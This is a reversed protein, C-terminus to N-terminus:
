PARMYASVTIDVQLRNPAAAQPNVGWEGDPDRLVLKEVTLLPRAGDIAHLAVVVSKIEAEVTSQVTIKTLSGERTEPLPQSTTVAANATAFIQTLQGQLQAVALAPQPAAFTLQAIEPNAALQKSLLEFRPAADALGRMTLVQRKLMGVQEAHLASATWLPWVFLWVALALIAGAGCLAIIRQRRPTLDIKM